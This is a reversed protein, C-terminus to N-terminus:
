RGTMSIAWALWSCVSSVYAHSSMQVLQMCATSPTPACSGPIPSSLINGRFHSTLLAQEVTAATMAALHPRSYRRASLELALHPIGITSAQHPAQARQLCAEGSVPWAHAKRCVTSSLLSHPSRDTTREPPHVFYRCGM